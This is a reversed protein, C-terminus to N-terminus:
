GAFPTFAYVPEGDDNVNSAAWDYNNGVGGHSTLLMQHILDEASTYDENTFGAGPTGNVEDALFLIHDVLVDTYYEGGGDIELEENLVGEEYYCENVFKAMDSLTLNRVFETATM